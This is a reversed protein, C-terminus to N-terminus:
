VDENEKNKREVMEMMLKSMFSNRFFNYDKLKERMPYIVNLGKRKKFKHRPMVMNKINFRMNGWLKQLNTFFNM